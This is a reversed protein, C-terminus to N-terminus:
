GWVRVLGGELVVEVGFVCCSLFFADRECGRVVGAGGCGAVADVICAGFVCFPFFTASLNFTGITVFTGM